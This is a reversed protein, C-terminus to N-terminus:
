AARSRLAQAYVTLAHVARDHRGLVRRWDEQVAEAPAATSEYPEGGGQPRPFRRFHESRDDSAAALEALLDALEGETKPIGALERRTREVEATLAGLLERFGASLEAVRKETANVDM